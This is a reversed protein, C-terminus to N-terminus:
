ESERARAAIYAPISAESLVPTCAIPHLKDTEPPLFALDNCLRPIYIVTLYSCTSVEKIQGIRDASNPHYHFLYRTEGKMEMKAVAAVEKGIGKGELLGDGAWSVKEGEKGRWTGEIGKLLEWGRDTARMLEKEEEDASRASTGNKGGDKDRDKVAPTSYLYFWPDTPPPKTTSAATPAHIPTHM